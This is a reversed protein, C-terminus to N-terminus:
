FRLISVTYSQLYPFQYYGQQCYRGPISNITKALGVWMAGGVKNHVERVYVFLCACVCVCVCVCV